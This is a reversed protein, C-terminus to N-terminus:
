RLAIEGNQGGVGTDCNVDRYRRRSTRQSQQCNQQLLKEERINELV